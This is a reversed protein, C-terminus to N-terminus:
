KKTLPLLDTLNIEFACVPQEIGFNDLVQPHIEGIYAIKKGKVSVRGARGPIFSPHETKSIIYDLGLNRMLFDLSQKATTFNAESGAFAWALRTPNRSRTEAREDFLVVEGMEFVNQPYEKNTNKGLFEILSPTIWTRFVSWNKSVPNDVEIVKVSELNMKKILNDRNTLIYSLVEQSGLGTMINSVSKSLQNTRTLEGLTSMKPVAPEIRNYGYSVIVDEIVDVEHMIDQRYAPYYVLLKRGRTKVDYRSELLLKKIQDVKLDLGSLKRVRDIDVMMERPELDPTKMRGEPSIVDVTEIKGGRDALASVM